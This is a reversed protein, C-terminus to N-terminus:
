LRLSLGVKKTSLLAYQFHLLTIAMIANSVMLRLKKMLHSIPRAKFCSRGHIIYSDFSYNM